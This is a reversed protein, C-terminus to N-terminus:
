EKRRRELKEGTGVNTPSFVSFFTSLLFSWSFKHQLCVKNCIKKAYFINPASIIKICKKRNKESGVQRMNPHLIFKQYTYKQLWFSYFNTLKKLRIKIVVCNKKWIMSCFKTTEPTYWNRYKHRNKIVLFFLLFWYLSM